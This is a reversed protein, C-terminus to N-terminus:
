LLNIIVVFLLGTLIKKVVQKPVTLRCDFLDKPCEMEFEAGSVAGQPVGYWDFGSRLLWLFLNILKMQKKFDSM